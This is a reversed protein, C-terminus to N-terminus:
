VNERSHKDKTHFHIDKHEQCYWNQCRPCQIVPKYFCGFIGCKKGQQSEKFWEELTWGNM